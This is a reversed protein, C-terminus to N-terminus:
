DSTKFALEWQPLMILFLLPKHRLIRLLTHLGKTELGWLAGKPHHRRKLMRTERRKLPMCYQLQTSHTATYFAEPPQHCHQAVAFDQPTATTLGWWPKKFDDDSQQVAKAKQPQIINQEMMYLFALFLLIRAVKFSASLKHRQSAEQTVVLTSQLGCIGDYPRSCM